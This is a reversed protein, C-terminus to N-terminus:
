DKRGSLDGSFFHFTLNLMWRPPKEGRVVHDCLKKLPNKIPGQDLLKQALNRAEELRGLRLFSALRINELSQHIHMPEALFRPEHLASQALQIAEQFREAQYFALSRFLAANLTPHSELIAAAELPEQRDFYAHFARAIERQNVRKEKPTLALDVIKIELDESNEKQWFQQLPIAAYRGSSTPAEDVSLYLMQKKGPEREFIATQITEGKLIDHYASFKGQKDAQESLVRAILSPDRVSSEELMQFARRMRFRSNDLIGFDANEFVRSEEHMLHNTQAFAMGESRRALFVKQSAEVTLSQGTNLDNMVFTWLSAPRHLRLIKEAEDLSRASRLILEGILIMPVGFVGVDRSFNQHIAFTIGAENVGTIGGFLLGDAGLVIHRLEGSNPNPEISLLMPHRDFTGVGAFDLNRGYVFGGESTPSAVSTCGPAPLFGLYPFSGLGQLLVGTDPLSLGRRLVIPDVGMGQAMGDIEEALHKPTARHFLRILQNYVLAFAGSFMGIERKSLATVKESFYDVVEGSLTGRLLRGMSRARIEPEGRLRVVKLGGCDRVSVETNQLVTKCLSALASQTILLSVLPIM